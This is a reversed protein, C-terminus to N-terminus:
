RPKGQRLQQFYMITWSSAQKRAPENDVGEIAVSYEKGDPVLGAAIAACASALALLDAQLVDEVSSGFVGEGSRCYEEAM